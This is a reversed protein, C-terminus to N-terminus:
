VTEDLTTTNEDFSLALTDFSKGAAGEDYKNGTEDFSITNEDYSAYLAGSTARPTGSEDFSQRTADFTVFTNDYANILAGRTVIIEGPPPVNIKTSYAAEPIIINTTDFRQQSATDDFTSNSDSFDRDGRYTSRVSVQNIRYEGFQGINYYAGDNDNTRATRHLGPYHPIGESTEIPPVAFAYKPLLDLTPGSYHSQRGVVGFSVKVDSTLTVERVGSSLPEASGETPNNRLTTGDTKTGLRRGFITTFLNTFTSALEPTFTDDSVSDRVSGAAPNQIRAAVQSAFSVEGFVNWGAPHVSHRVSERWENISQGIRVVYSYDQYYYSDQIRMTDVSVKGRDSVFNGVTTGVTGITSTAEAQSSQYVTATAGTISTITDGTNFDVSTSLELINRASDFDVVTASHSTLTDGAVFAGSVNQVLINRNLTITPSSSYDLGFNTIAIGEVHGVM